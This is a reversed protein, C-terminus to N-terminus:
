VLRLTQCVADHVKDPAQEGNVTHFTVLPSDHLFEIAPVVSQYFWLIRETVDHERKDDDRGRAMMRARAWEDGVRLYVVHLDWGYFDAAGLLLPVEDLVRPAGDIIVDQGAYEDVLLQSWMHVGLFSPPLKGQLILGHTLKATHNTGDKKILDRFHAGTEVYFPDQGNKKALVGKLLAAQM